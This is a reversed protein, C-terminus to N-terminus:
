KDSLYQGPAYRIITTVVVYISYLVVAPLVTTAYLISIPTVNSLGASLIAITM